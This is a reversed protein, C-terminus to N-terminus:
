RDGFKSSTGSKNAEEMAGIIGSKDPWDRRRKGEELWDLLKRLKRFGGWRDFMLM